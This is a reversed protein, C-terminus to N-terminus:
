RVDDVEKGTEDSFLAEIVLIIGVGVLLLPWSSSWTFGFLNWVNITGWAGAMLLWLGQIRGGKVSPWLVRLVGIGILVVPWLKWLSPLFAILELARALLLIGGAILLLGVLLRAPDTPRTLTM